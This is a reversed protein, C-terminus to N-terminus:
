RLILGGDVCLGQGTLAAAGESVLFAVAAATDEPTLRRKLARRNVVDAVEAERNATGPAETLGPAIAGHERDRRRHNETAAVGCPHPLLRPEDRGAHDWEEDNVDEIWTFYGTAAFTSCSTSGRRSAPM